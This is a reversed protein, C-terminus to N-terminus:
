GDLVALRTRRGPADRVPGRAPDLRVGVVHAGFSAISDRDIGGRLVPRKANRGKPHTPILSEPGPPDPTRAPDAGRPLRGWGQIRSRVRDARSPGGGKVEGHAVRPSLPIVQQLEDRARAAGAINGERDAVVGAVGVQDDLVLD